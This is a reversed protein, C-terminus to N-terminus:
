RLVFKTPLTIWDESYRKKFSEIVYKSLEIGAAIKRVMKLFPAHAKPSLMDSFLHLM